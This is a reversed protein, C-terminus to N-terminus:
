SGTPFIEMWQAPRRGVSIRQVRRMAAGLKRPSRRVRRMLFQALNITDAKSFYKASRKKTVEFNQQGKKAVERIKTSRKKLENAM